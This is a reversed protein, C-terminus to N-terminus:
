RVATMYGNYLSSCEKMCKLYLNRIREDPCIRLYAEKELISILPKMKYYYGYDSDKGLIHLYHELIHKYGLGDARFECLSLLDDFFRIIDRSFFGGHEERNELGYYAGFPTSWLMGKVSTRTISCHYWKQIEEYKDTGLVKYENSFTSFQSNAIYNFIKENHEKDMVQTHSCWCIYNNDARGVTFLQKEKSIYLDIYIEKHSLDYNPKVQNGENILNFKECGQIKM